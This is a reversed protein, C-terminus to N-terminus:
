RRVMNKLKKFAAKVVAFLYFIIGSYNVVYQYMKQSEPDKWELILDYKEMIKLMIKCISYRHITRLQCIDKYMFQLMWKSFDKRMESFLDRCMWECIISELMKLHNKCKAVEQQSFYYVTSQEHLARYHYFKDPLFLINKAYPFVIFQFAQDEGLILTEDFIAQANKLLRRNYFKNCMFPIAGIKNFLIDPEFCKYYDASVDLYQLIWETQVSIEPVVDGSFVIIDADFNKASKYLCELMDLEIYDDADIFAVFEGIANKLGQNRASSVGRNEQSIVRIRKENDAYQELIKESCDTSGDNICLIEIEQLTQNIISDLCERLYKEANYVPIIVSVKIQNSSMEVSWKIV